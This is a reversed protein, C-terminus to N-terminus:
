TRHVRPHSTRPQREEGHDLFHLAFIHMEGELEVQSYAHPWTQTPIPHGAVKSIIDRRVELDLRELRELASAVGRGRLRLNSESSTITALFTAEFGLDVLDLDLVFTFPLPTSRLSCRFNSRSALTASLCARRSSRLSLHSSRVAQSFSGLTLCTDPIKANPSPANITNAPTLATNEPPASM